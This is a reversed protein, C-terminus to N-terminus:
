LDRAKGRGRSLYRDARSREQHRGPSQPCGGEEKLEPLLELGLGEVARSTIKKIGKIGTIQEEIRVCIAEEIEEASAGKTNLRYRFLISLSSPFPRM